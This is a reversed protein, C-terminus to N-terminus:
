SSSPSLVFFPPPPSLLLLLPLLLLSLLLLSLACDGGDSEGDGDGERVDGGHEPGDGHGREHGRGGREAKRGHATHAAAAEEPAGRRRSARLTGAPLHRGRTRGHIQKVLEEAGDLLAGVRREDRGVLRQGTLRWIASEAWGGLCGVM